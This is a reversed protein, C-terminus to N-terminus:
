RTGLKQGFAGEGGEFAEQMDFGGLMTSNIAAPTASIQAM